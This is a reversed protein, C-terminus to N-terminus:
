SQRFFIFLSWRCTFHTFFYTFLQLLILQLIAHTLVSVAIKSRIKGVIIVIYCPSWYSKAIFVKDEMRLYNYIPQLAIEDIFQEARIAM